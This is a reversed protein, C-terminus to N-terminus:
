LGDSAGDGFLPVIRQGPVAGDANSLIVTGATLGEGSVEVTLDSELGLTVPIEQVLYTGDGQDVAAYVVDEGSVSVGLAEYPVALM